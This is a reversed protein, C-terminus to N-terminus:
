KTLLIKNIYIKDATKIKLIYLGNSVLNFNLDAINNNLNYTFDIKQGNLNELVLETINELNTLKVFAKEKAPNPYVVVNEASFLNKIADPVNTATDLPCNGNLTLTKFDICAVWEPFDIFPNRNNQISYIYENRAIEFNDVPDQLHWQVLLDVDQDNGDTALNNFAWSGSVGNYTVAMYFLTRAINGKISERPEFATINSTNKGNKCDQEASGSNDVEDFTYNSRLTQNVSAKVLYLNHRDSTENQLDNDNDPLSPMWSRAMVHERNYDNFDISNDYVHVINSYEGIIFKKNVMSGTVLVATDKQLVNEVVDRYDGYLLDYHNKLLDTLDSISEDTDIRYNKYYNGIEKGKTFQSGTLPNSTKYNPVAGSNYGFIAFYYETNAIAERFTYFTNAANSMVKANGIWEGVVYSTGDVPVGTIPTTSRLVLYKSADSGSFSVSMGYAKVGLFSINTPQSTPESQAFGIFFSSSVLISFCIKKLM